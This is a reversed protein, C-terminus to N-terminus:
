KGICFKAFINHLLTDTTVSGTITGLHTTAERIDQAIFDASLGTELGSLARRLAESGKLLAEYHRANTVIFESQPDYGDTAISRLRGMLEEVGEGTKASLWVVENLKMGESQAGTKASLWVAENLKMGESQAGTKFTPLSSYPPADGALLDDGALSRSDDGALSRLDAGPMLDTKNVVTIIQTTHNDAAFKEYEELQSALDATPDFIWIVIRAQRMKERAREIGLGEVTDSTSRLGATDIFRYLIGEIELTDEITDRTTGPIDSVIAKDDGLLLNLLSSKGANPVGAIVTPVGDKLAAGSSYSAALRDLRRILNSALSVLRERDAFEVDEESFDLELELLSALEVLENRVEELGRSFHGRTQSMALAHAARSSSAILDVVGEAQALDLRGNMFARQTFEGPGATRAGRRILDAMVERQIWRSGHVSIEAVDEGTFSNPCRFVTIVAEDLLTGDTAVYKGLHATHSDMKEVPQGKWAEGVIRLADRGSVRVVAIGGVGPPTSIAAITDQQMGVKVQEM